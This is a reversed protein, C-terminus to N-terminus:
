QNKLLAQYIQITIEDGWSQPLIIGFDSLRLKFNLSLLSSLTANGAIQKLEGNAYITRVIKNMHLEAQFNLSQDPHELTNVYPINMKAKLLLPKLSTKILISNLSDTATRLTAPNLSLGIEATDYNILVFLNNSSATVISDKYSGIIAISGERTQYSQQAKISFSCLLFVFAAICDKKLIKVM